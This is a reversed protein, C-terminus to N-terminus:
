IQTWKFPDKDKKSLLIKVNKLQKQLDKAIKKLIFRESVSHSLCIVTLDAAEAAIAEHHKIEGTLYLDCGSAIVSNIIKGCSGACVAAKKVMKNGNGVIGAIDAGTAKKIDALIKKVSKPKPLNGIRGLGIKEDSFLKVVDFAPMEYPHSKRMAALCASIKASPVIVELRIENVKELKGRTGIAPNAGALPKFTGIGDSRFSCHSYNGIGGAGADFLAAAVKNVADAPVFVILKYNDMDPVSVYDGIPASNEIGVMDSLGDNVGGAIVDVSTHMSYVSIGARILEYVVEGPGSSTVTKLGDWIVPHYSLVMKCGKAKAEAVVDSTVDITILIKDVKAQSQGVLLGVNDWDQALNPPVMKEIEVVIDSIKAM